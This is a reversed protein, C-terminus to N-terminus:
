THFRVKSKSGSRTHKRPGPGLEAMMLDLLHECCVTKGSGRSGTITSVFSTPFEDISLPPMAPIVEEGPRLKAAPEAVPREREEEEPEDPEDDRTAM